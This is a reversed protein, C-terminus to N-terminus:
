GKRSLFIATPLTPLLLVAINDSHLTYLAGGIIWLVGLGIVSLFTILAECSKHPFRWLLMNKVVDGGDLGRVPLLNFSGMVFNIASFLVGNSRTSGWFIAALVFNMGSGALLAVIERPYSSGQEARTIKGGAWSLYLGTPKIGVVRMFVIHSLEHCLAACLGMLLLGGGDVLVGFTLMFCFWFEIEVALGGCRFGVAKM